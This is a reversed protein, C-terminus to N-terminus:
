RILSLRVIRCFILEERASKAPQMVTCLADV